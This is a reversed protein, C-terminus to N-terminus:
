ERERPAVANGADANGADAESHPRGSRRRGFGDTAPVSVSASGNLRHM